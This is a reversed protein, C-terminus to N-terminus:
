LGLDARRAAEFQESLIAASVEGAAQRATNASDIQQVINQTVYTNGVHRGGRMAQDISQSTQNNFIRAGVPLQVIEPGAEGVWTLGGGFYNTGTANEQIGSGQTGGQTVVRGRQEDVTVVVRRSTPVSNIADALRRAAAAAEDANNVFDTNISDPTSLLVDIYQATDSEASDATNVIDTEIGEPILLLADTYEAGAQRAAIFADVQDGSMTQALRLAAEASEVSGDTVLQIAEKQDDLTATLLQSDSTLLELTEIGKARAIQLDLEGEEALGLAVALEATAEIDNSNALIRELAYQRLELRLAGFADGIEQAERIADDALNSIDSSFSGTAARAADQLREMREAIREAAAEAEAMNEASLRAARGQEILAAGAGFSADIAALDADTLSDVVDSLSQTETATDRTANLQARMAAEAEVSTRNMERQTAISVLQAEVLRLLEFENGRFGDSILESAITFAQAQDEIDFAARIARSANAAGLALAGASNRFSDVGNELASFVQNVQALEEFERRAEKVDVKTDRLDNQQKLQAATTELIAAKLTLYEKTLPAVARGAQEQLALTASDATSELAVLSDAAAEAAGGYDNRIQEGAVRIFESSSIFKKGVDDITFGMEELVANADFGRERLQNLEEASVKGKSQLQGFALVLGNVTEGTGGTATALDTLDQVLQQANESQFGYTQALRFSQALDDRSFPSVAALRTVWGLLEEARESAADSASALDAFDGSRVLERAVLSTMSQNLLELNGFAELSDKGFQVLAQAADQLTTALGLVGIGAVVDSFKFMSQGSERTAQELRGFASASQRAEDSVNELERSTRKEADTVSVLRREYSALKNSLEGFERRTEGTERQLGQYAGITKRTNTILAQTTREGQRIADAIKELQDETAAGSRILKRQEAQLRSTVSRSAEVARVHRNLSRELNDFTRANEGGVTDLQGAARRLTDTSSSARKLERELRDLQRATQELGEGASKGRIIIEVEAKTDM